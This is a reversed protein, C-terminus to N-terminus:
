KLSPGAEGGTGGSRAKPFQNSRGFRSSARRRSKYRNGYNERLRYNAVALMEAEGINDTSM